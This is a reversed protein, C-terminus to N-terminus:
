AAVMALPSPGPRRLDLMRVVHRGRRDKGAEGAGQSTLVRLRKAAAALGIAADWSHPGGQATRVQAVAAFLGLRLLFRDRRIPKAAGRARVHRGRRRGGPVQVVLRRDHPLRLHWRSRQEALAVWVRAARPRGRRRMISPARLRWGEVWFRPGKFGDQGALYIHTGLEVASGGDRDHRPVSTTIPAPSTQRSAHTCATPARMSTGCVHMCVHSAIPPACMM